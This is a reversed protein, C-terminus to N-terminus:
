KDPGSVTGSGETGSGEKVTAGAAVQGCGVHTHSQPSVEL